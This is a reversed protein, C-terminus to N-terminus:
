VERGDDEIDCCMYETKSRSIKMGRDELAARWRELKLELEERQEVYLVVDDAYLICRPVVERM